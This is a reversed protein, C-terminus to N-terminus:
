RMAHEGWIGRAAQMNGPPSILACAHPSPNVAMCECRYVLTDDKDKRFYEQIFKKFSEVNQRRQRAIQQEDQDIGDPVDQYSYYLAGAASLLVLSPRSCGAKVFLPASRM